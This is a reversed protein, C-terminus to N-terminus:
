LKKTWTCSEALEKLETVSPMRWKGGWTARVIDYTSGYIQNQAPAEYYGIIGEGTVDGWLYAEGKESPATAGM